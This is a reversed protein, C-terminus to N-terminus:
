AAPEVTVARATAGDLAVRAAGIAIVVSGFAGRHTVRVVTGSRLGMEQARLLMDHAVGVGTIRVRERTPCESLSM